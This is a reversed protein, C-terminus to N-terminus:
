SLSSPVFSFMISQRLLRVPFGLSAFICLFLCIGGLFSPSHQCFSFCLRALFSALPAFYRHDARSCRAEVKSSVLDYVQVHRRPFHGSFPVFSAHSFHPLSFLISSGIVGSKSSSFLTLSNVSTGVKFFVVELFDPHRVSSQFFLSPPSLVASLEYFRLIATTSRFPLTEGSRSFWRCGLGLPLFLSLHPSLCPLLFRMSFVLFLTQFPFGWSFVPRIWSSFPSFPCAPNEQASGVPASGSLSKRLGFCFNSWFQRQKLLVACHQHQFALPSRSSGLWASTM